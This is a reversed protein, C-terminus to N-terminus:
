DHISTYFHNNYSSLTHSEEKEFHMGLHTISNMITKTDKKIGLVDPNITLCQNRGGGKSTTKLCERSM